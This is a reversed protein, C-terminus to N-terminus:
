PRRTAPPGAASGGPLVNLYAILADVDVSSLTRGWPPCQSSRGVSATGGEIVQRWYSSPHTKLSERFNPPKPDLNFANQGDGEGSEGHCTICYHGFVRKGDTEARSLGEERAQRRFVEALPDGPPAAQGRGCGAVCVVISGLVLARAGFRGRTV